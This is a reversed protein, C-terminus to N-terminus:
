FVSFVCRCGCPVIFPIHCLQACSASKPRSPALQRHIVSAISVVTVSPLLHRRHPSASSPASVHEFRSPSPLIHVFVPLSTFSQNMSLVAYFLGTLFRRSVDLLGSFTLLRRTSLIAFNRCVDRIQSLRRANDLFIPSCFFPFVLLLLLLIM